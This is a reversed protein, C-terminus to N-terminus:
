GFLLQNFVRAITVDSATIGAPGSHSVGPISHAAYSPLGAWPTAGSPMDSCLDSSSVQVENATSIEASYCAIKEVRGGLKPRDDILRTVLPSGPFLAKTQEERLANGNIGGFKIREDANTFGRFPTDLTIWHTAPQTLPVNPMGERWTDDVLCAFTDTGGMSHCVIDFPETPTVEAIKVRMFYGFDAFDRQPEAESLPMVLVRDNWNQFCSPGRANIWHWCAGTEDTLGPVLYLQRKLQNGQTTNLKELATLWNRANILAEIADEAM